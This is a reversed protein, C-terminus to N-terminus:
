DIQSDETDSESYSYFESEESETSSSFLSSKKEEECKKSIAHKLKPMQSKCVRVTVGSRRLFVQNHENAFIPRKSCLTTQGINWASVKLEIVYFHHNLGHACAAMTYSDCWCYRSERLEHKKKRNVQASVPDPLLVHHVDDVVPIFCTRVMYDPVPPSYRSLLDRLALQFHDRQYLSMIFGEARADDTIGLFITGGLDTNLMGCIYRSISRRASVIKPTYDGNRAFTLKKTSLDLDSLQRHAKFENKLDEDVPLVSHRIYCDIRSM